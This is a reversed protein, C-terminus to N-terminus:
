AMNDSSRRRGFCAAEMGWRKRREAAREQEEDVHSGLSALLVVASAVLPRLLWSSFCPVRWAGASSSRAVSRSGRRRYSRRRRPASPSSSPPPTSPHLNPPPARAFSSLRATAASLGTSWPPSCWRSRTFSRAASCARSGGGGRRRPPSPRTLSM